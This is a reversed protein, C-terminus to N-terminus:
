SFSGLYFLLLYYNLKINNFNMQQEFFQDTVEYILLQPEYEFINQQHLFLINNDIFRVWKSEMNGIKIKCDSFYKEENLNKVYSIVAKLEYKTNLFMGERRTKSIYPDFDYVLDFNIDRYFNHNKRELYIILTKAPFCIRTYKACKNNGCVRCKSHCGGSYCTFLEGLDLNTGMKMPYAADRYYRIIDLNMRFISQFAYFYYVACNPCKYTYRVTNFFNNSIISNQTTYVFNLFLRYIYNDNRMSNLDQNFLSNDYNNFMNTELQLFQLLFYLFHFPDPALVNHSVIYNQNERYIKVFYFLINQSDAAIGSNVCEILNLLENTLPFYNNNRMGNNLIFSFLRNTADLFCLSQLSSHAYSFNVSNNQYSNFIGQPQPNM